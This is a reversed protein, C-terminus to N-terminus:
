CSDDYLLYYIDIYSHMIFIYSYTHTHICYNTTNVTYITTDYFNFYIHIHSISLYIYKMYFFNTNEIFKTLGNEFPEIGFNDKEGLSVNRPIDTISSKAM